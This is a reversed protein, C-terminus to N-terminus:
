SLTRTAACVCSKVLVGEWEVSCCYHGYEISLLASLSPYYCVGDGRVLGCECVYVYVRCVYVCTCVCTCVHVCVRVCVSVRVCLCVRVCVSVRVCLCVCVCM